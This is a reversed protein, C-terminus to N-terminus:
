ETAKKAFGAIAKGVNASVAECGPTNHRVNILYAPDNWGLYVDGKADQWVLAKQPLDIGVTQTCELMPTGGPPSGWILVETSRLTKGIRQAGAAHDVRAFINMSAAKVAEEFKDMTVKASHVSKIAVLGQVGQPNSPPAMSACAGLLSGLSAVSIAVIFKKM